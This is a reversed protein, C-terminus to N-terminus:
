LRLNRTLPLSVLFQRLALEDTCAGLPCHFRLIQIGPALADLTDARRVKRLLGLTLAHVASDHYGYRHARVAGDLLDLDIARGTGRDQVGRHFLDHMERPRELCKRVRQALLSVNQM